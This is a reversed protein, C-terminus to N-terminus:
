SFETYYRFAVLVRMITNGDCDFVNPVTDIKLATSRYWVGYEDACDFTEGEKM